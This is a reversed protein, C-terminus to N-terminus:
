AKEERAREIDGPVIECVAYLEGFKVHHHLIKIGTKKMEEAFSDYTYEIYHTKDSRYDLGEEKKYLVIWDRDIMPVRFLMRRGEGWNVCDILSKLFDVRKDIHEVVNSLVVCDISQYKSFDYKTADACIYEINSGDSNSKAEEILDPSVDLGYVFKAKSALMRTMLGTNCGVDLVTWEPEINDLFWEKYELIRHKPHIGGEKIIALVDAIYYSVSHMWLAPKIFLRAFVRGIATHKIVRKINM